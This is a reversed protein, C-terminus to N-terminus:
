AGPLGLRESLVGAVVRLERVDRGPLLRVAAGDTTTVVLVPRPPPDDGSLRITWTLVRISRLRTRPLSLTMREFPGATEIQLVDPGLRLVAGQRHARRAVAMATMYHTHGILIMLLSALAAFMLADLRARVNRVDLGIDFLVAALAFVAGGAVVGFLVDRRVRGRRYAASPEGPPFRVTLVGDAEDVEVRSGPPLGHQRRYPPVAATSSSPDAQM